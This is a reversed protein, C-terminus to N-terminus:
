DDGLNWPDDWVDWPDDDNDDMNNGIHYALISAVVMIALWLKVNM